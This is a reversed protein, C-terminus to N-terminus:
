ISGDSAGIVGLARELPVLYPAYNRWHDVSTTYIPERVQWQSATVVARLNRHFDLCAPHWPLGLFDVLERAGAAVDTTLSEYDIELMQLPLHERWHAMLRAYGLYAAALDELDYSYPHNGALDRCYISFCTAMATRRCHIVRASPFLMAILGLYLFNYPMKDTVRTAQSNVSELLDLYDQALAVIAAEHGPVCFPFPKKSVLRRGLNPVHQPFFTLEGSGHVQPHSAVIQEVLTTGSRPMGLIFVPVQSNSGTTPLTALYDSTFVAMLSDIFRSQADADFRAHAHKAKNGRAFAAFADAFNGSRDHLRGLAFEMEIRASEDPTNALAATIRTPLDAPMDKGLSLEVLNRYADGFAPDLELAREFFSAALDREGAASAAMGLHNHTLPLHEDLTLAARFSVAADDIKNQAYRTLGLANLLLPTHVGCALAEEFAQEADALAGHQRYCHGLAEWVQVQKADLELSRRLARIAEAYRANAQLALGLNFHGPAFDPLLRVVRHFLQAAEETDGRQRLLNGLNNLADAYDPRAKLAKRYHKEARKFEGSTRMLNALNFHAEPFRPKSAIAQEFAAAAAPNDELQALALGLNNSYDPHAPDIKLAQQLLGAGARANGTQCGLVGLMNLAQAHRPAQRLVERYLHEARQLAGEEHFKIATQFLQEVAATPALKPRRM